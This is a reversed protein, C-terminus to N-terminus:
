FRFKFLVVNIYIPNILNQKKLIFLLNIDKNAKNFKNNKIVDKAAEFNSIVFSSFGYPEIKRYSIFTLTFFFGSLAFKTKNRM